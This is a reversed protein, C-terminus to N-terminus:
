VSDEPKKLKALGLRQRFKRYAAFTISKGTLELFKAPGEKDKITQAIERMINKDNETWKKNM